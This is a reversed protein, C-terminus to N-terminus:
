KHEFISQTRLVLGGQALLHYSQAHIERRFRQVDLISACPGGDQDDWLHILADSEKGFGVLEKYTASYLNEPLTETQVTTLYNLKDSVPHEHDKEGACPIASVLGRQPLQLDGSTILETASIDDRQFRMVHQGAMIWAEFEYEGQSFIRRGKISFLEPHLARRYLILRYAQLSASKLPTSM